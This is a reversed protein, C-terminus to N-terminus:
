SGSSDSGRRDGGGGSAAATDRSGSGSDRQQRVLQLVMAMAELIGVWDRFSVPVGDDKGAEGDGSFNYLFGACPAGDVERPGDNLGVEPPRLYFQRGYLHPEGAGSKGSGGFVSSFFGGGKAIPLAKGAVDVEESPILDVQVAGDYGCRDKGVLVARWISRLLFGGKPKVDYSDSLYKM